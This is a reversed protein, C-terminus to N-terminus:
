RGRRYQEFLQEMTTTRAGPQLPAPPVYNVFRVVWDAAETGVDLANICGAAQSLGGLFLRQGTLALSLIACNVGGHLVLLVTDWDEQARLRAIAPHVRDMMEGVSEGGLFRQEEDVMGEFAGTFARRLESAPISSLRGGRIEHLEPWVEAEIAQGSALLVRQATESTRPLGSVIVRDFHVGSERFARGAADAQARGDENLPVTEPLFPKGSEDFYTVSGHRMLYVRRRQAPESM